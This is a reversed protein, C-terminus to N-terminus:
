VVMYAKPEIQMLAVVSYALPAFPPVDFWCDIPSQRAVPWANNTASPSALAWDM